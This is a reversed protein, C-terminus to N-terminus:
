QQEDETRIMISSFSSTWVRAKSIAEDKSFCKGLSYVLVGKESFLHWENFLDEKLVVTHDYM